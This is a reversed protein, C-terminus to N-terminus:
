KGEIAPLLQEASSLRLMSIKGDKALFVAPVVPIKLGEALKGNEALKKDCDDMM